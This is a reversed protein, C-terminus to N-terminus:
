PWVSIISVPAYLYTIQGISEVEQVSYHAGFRQCLSCILGQEVVQPVVNSVGIQTLLKPEIVLKMNM